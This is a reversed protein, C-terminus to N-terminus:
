GGPFREEVGGPLARARGPCGRTGAESSFFLELQNSLLPHPRAWALLMM